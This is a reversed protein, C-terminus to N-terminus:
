RSDKLESIQDKLSKIESKLKVTENQIKEIEERLEPCFYNGTAEDAEQMASAYGETLGFGHM